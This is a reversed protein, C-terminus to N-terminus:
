NNSNEDNARKSIFIKLTRGDDQVSAKIQKHVDYFVVERGTSGSGHCAPCEFSPEMLGEIIQRGKGKCVPCDTHDIVEFRTVLKLKEMSMFDPNLAGLEYMKDVMKNVKALKEKDLMETENGLLTVVWGFLVLKREAEDRYPM